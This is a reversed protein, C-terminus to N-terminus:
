EYRLAEAPEVKAARYAPYITSLLSLLLSFAIITLIQWPELATPLYMTQAGFLNVIGGLNLTVLVGLISGLLTGMLGVLLGQYIFISRVQGKTLGQTQLIAIEGQKDVVMLSLSTIINSIAVVIILSVLLGMMNKEMRVAQFFEGKQTRWDSIQYDAPFATPLATIQFPDALFLRFGQAEGPQIRMLRGIDKLNAFAEYGSVEGSDFYIESVTFLRQLPVRGFPTYQSNETIMLRVKDGVHLNLKQALQDGIIIKFEGAPLMKDFEQEPFDFLIPDDSFQRIGIVQGASVGGATQFIVNTMNIPVAKQVFNPIPLQAEDIKVNGNPSVIAHPITSLVQQKQYGELGNMVSLVIILAMVGLVIGFGALNTVLRGFRDASKARWYRLAIFLPTSLTM